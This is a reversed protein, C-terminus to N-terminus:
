LLRLDIIKTYAPHRYNPSLMVLPIGRHTQKLLNDLTVPVYSPPSCESLSLKCCTVSASQSVLARSLLHASGDLVLGGYDTATVKTRM